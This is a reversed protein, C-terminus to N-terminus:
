LWRRVRQQYAEYDAGFETQAKGEEFPCFVTDIVVFYTAAAIYYALGGVSMAVGLMILVMGLYMPNRTLGYIDGTILTTSTATPCIATGTQRFLWWARMMVAFGLAAIFAGGPLSTPLVPSTGQLVFQIGTALLLLGMAIGPPRYSLMRPCIEQLPNM